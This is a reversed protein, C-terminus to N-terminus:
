SKVTLLILGLGTSPKHIQRSAENHCTLCAKTVDEPSAFEQQLVAHRSHDTTVWRKTPQSVKRAQEAGYTKESEITLQDAFSIGGSLIYFCCFGAILLFFRSCYTSLGTLM